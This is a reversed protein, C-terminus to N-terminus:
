PGGGAGDPGALLQSAVEALTRGIMGQQAADADPDIHTRFQAVTGTQKVGTVAVPTYGDLLLQELLRSNPDPAVVLDSNAGGGILATLHEATPV